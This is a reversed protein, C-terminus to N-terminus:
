YTTLLRDDDIVTTEADRRKRIYRPIAFMRRHTESDYYDLALHREGARKDIEDAEFAATSSERSAVIFSWDTNFSPVYASYSHLDPLVQRITNYIANHAALFPLSFDGAQLAMYGGANLREKILSYFQRTFLRRSPGEEVPEPLDIIIVDYCAKNEELYQRADQHLLEVRPDDFSGRHWQPLHEKCLAVVARDIDVMVAREVTPHRLVERLTAGEGGGIVLVRRPAEHMLMAPHVLAQHYIYEDYETSQVKGDLILMRGFFYTDVIEVQQYPTRAAALYDKVGFM